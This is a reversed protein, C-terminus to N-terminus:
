FVFRASDKVEVIEVAEVVFQPTINGRYSNLGTKGVVNLVATKGDAKLDKLKSVDSFKIFEIGNVMFKMIGETKGILMADTLNVELQEIAYLPQDMGKGWLKDYKSIDYIFDKTLSKANMILDVMYSENADLEYLSQNIAENLQKFNEPTIKLGFAQAHGEATTFLNLSQLHSKTDVLLQDYGRASGVLMGDDDKRLILVPKRYKNVLNSAIYGSMNMQFDGEIELVMFRNKTMDGAEVKASLEEVIKERLNRQRSYSNKALRVVRQAHTESKDAKRLRPNQTINKYNLFAMMLEHKEEETGVRLLSNIQPNIGFSIKNVTLEEDKAHTEILQKLFDNNLNSIGTDILYKTERNSIKMADGILGFAVLDLYYSAYDTRNVNDLEQIFKYVVGAGSLNKNPYDDLQNNIVIAHESYKPAEHHDIVLIDVGKDSYEKHLEYENSSADPVILLQVDDPIVIKEIGHKVKATHLSWTLNVAPYSKQLYGILVAASTYGDFIGTL